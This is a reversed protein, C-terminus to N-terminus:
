KCLTELTEQDAFPFDRIGLRRAFTVSHLWRLPDQKRWKPFLCFMPCIRCGSHKVWAMNHSDLIRDIDTEVCDRLPYYYVFGKARYAIFSDANRLQSLVIARNASRDGGKIGMIFVSSDKKEKKGLKMPDRKLTHCCGFDNKPFAPRKETKPLVRAKRMEEIVKPINLFATRVTEVPNVVPRIEEVEYSTKIRLAELADLASKLELGTQNHLMTGKIGNEWADLIM